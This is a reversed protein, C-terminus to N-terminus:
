SIAWIPTIVAVNDDNKATNIKIDLKNLNLTKLKLRILIKESSFKQNIKIPKRIRSYPNILDSKEIFSTAFM